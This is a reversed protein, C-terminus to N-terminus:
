QVVVQDVPVYLNPRNLLQYFYRDGDAKIYGLKVKITDGKEWKLRTNKNSPLMIPYGKANLRKYAHSVVKDATVLVVQFAPAPKETPTPTPEPTTQLEVILADQDLIHDNLQELVSTQRTVEEVLLENALELDVVLDTLYVQTPAFDVVPVVLDDNVDAVDNLSLGFYGLVAVLVVGIVTAIVGKKPKRPASKNSPVTRETSLEPSDTM